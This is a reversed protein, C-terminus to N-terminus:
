PVDLVGSGYNKVALPVQAYGSMRWYGATGEMAIWYGLVIWYGLTGEMAIWHGGNRDLVGLVRWYGATGEM